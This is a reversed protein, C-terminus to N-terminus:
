LNILSFIAAIMVFLSVYIHSAAGTTTTTGATTTTTVGVTTTDPENNTTGVSTTLEEVVSSSFIVADYSSLTVNAKLALQGVYFKSFPSATVVWM